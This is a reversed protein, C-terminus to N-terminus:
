ILDSHLVVVLLFYDFNPIMFQFKGCDQHRVYFCSTKGQRDANVSVVRLSFYYLALWLHYRLPLFWIKRWVNGRFGFLLRGYMGLHDVSLGSFFPAFNMILM